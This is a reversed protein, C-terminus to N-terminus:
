LIGLLRTLLLFTGIMTAVLLILCWMVLIVLFLTLPLLLGIVAASLIIFCWIKYFVNSLRDHKAM